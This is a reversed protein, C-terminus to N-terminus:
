RSLRIDVEREVYTWERTQRLRDLLHEFDASQEASYEFWTLFDFEGGHDRCHVLRRAIAPLYEMGISVHRSQEQFIERREDQSLAWWAPTKRIPILAACRSEARGLSAQRQVLEAREPATTYRANSSTGRLSWVMCFGPPPDMHELRAAEGPKGIALHLREAHVLSKGVVPRVEQIRWSPVQPAGSGAFFAHPVPLELATHM